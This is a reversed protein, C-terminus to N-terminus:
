AACTVVSSIADSGYSGAADIAAIGTSKVEFCAGVAGAAHAAPTMGYLASAAAVALMAKKLM